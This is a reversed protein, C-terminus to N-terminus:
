SVSAGAPIRALRPGLRIPEGACNLLEIRAIDKDKTRDLTVTRYSSQSKGATFPILEPAPDGVAQVSVATANDPVDFLRIQDDANRRLRQARVTLNVGVTRGTLASLVRYDLTTRVQDISPTREGDRRSRSGFGGNQQAAQLEATNRAVADAIHNLADVFRQMTNDSALEVTPQDAPM